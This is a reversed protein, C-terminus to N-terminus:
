PLSLQLRYQVAISDSTNGSAWSILAFPLAVALGRGPVGPCACPLSRFLRAPLADLPSLLLEGPRSRANNTM